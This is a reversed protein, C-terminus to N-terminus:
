NADDDDERLIRIDTPTTQDYYRLVEEESAYRVGHEDQAEPVVNAWDHEAQSYDCACDGFTGDNWEGEPKGLLSDRVTQANRTGEELANAPESGSDYDQSWYNRNRWTREDFENTPM